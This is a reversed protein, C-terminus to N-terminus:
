AAGAPRFRGQKSKPSRFSWQSSVYSLPFAAVPSKEAEMAALLQELILSAPNLVLSKSRDAFTASKYSM